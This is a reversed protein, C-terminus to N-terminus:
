HYPSWRSRCEKGVRREESRDTRGKTGAEGLKGILERMPRMMLGHDDGPSNVQQITRRFGARAKCPGYFGCGREQNPPWFDILYFIQSSQPSFHRYGM